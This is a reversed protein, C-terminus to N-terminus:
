SATHTASAPSPTGKNGLMMLGIQQVAEETAPVEGMMEGKFMVLIRDSLALLESIETSLLLVAKGAERERLIRSHIFEIAGIDVGRTPNCAVLLEHEREMERAIVIKQQNGGSMNAARTDPGGAKIAYERIVEGVRRHIYRGRLFGHKAYPPHWREKMIFNEQVTFSLALGETQRNFPIASVGNELVAKPSKGSLDKGNVQVRGAEAKALGMIADVLELQGNGDVGAIGLTEGARVTFSVGNVACVGNEAKVKLGEVALVAGGPCCAKRPLATNVERGVMMSALEDANTEATPLTAICRGDRLISVRDCFTMVERMKHTIFIVTNGEQVWTRLVGFLEDTEQPTLVATPEDMILVQVGKFLAKLIEVRQQDGVCLDEIRTDLDVLLGTSKQIEAIRRRAAKTDLLPARELRTGLIINELVTFKEVLMFHQHVMGIGLAIAQQPGGIHVPTGDVLIRGEDPKLLGYLMNMLTSKGAGNEGLLAHLEGRAFGVNVDENATVGPFRKSIHEMVVIDQM